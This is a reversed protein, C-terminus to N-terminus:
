VVENPDVIFIFYGGTEASDDVIEVTWGLHEGSVIIGKQSFPFSPLNPKM